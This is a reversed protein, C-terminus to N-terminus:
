GKQLIALAELHPTHPFFDFPELSVLRYGGASLARVDRALTKPNCSVYFLEPIDLALLLGLGKASIGARPPDVVVVDAREAPPHKLFREVTETRFSVNPVENAALNEEACRINEALSDIGTVKEVSGALAIELPGTGCYLGLVRSKPTALAAERIRRYLREAAATNTQFFTQPYIRFALGLIKEVIYARGHLLSMREFSVVDSMRNTVAQYFSTLGPVAPAIRAALARLDAAVDDATVLIAMLEATGQARRLVLHRLTGREVGPLHPALGNERAFELVLPFLTEVVPSFIPCKRLPVTEGWSRAMSSRERLGLVTEGGRWGFGFEMKNRYSYLQPSPIVAGIEISALAPIEAESLVRRLHDGKLELQKGYELNQFRCGGCPGFHPCEAEARFPSPVELKLIEATASERKERVIQVLARDGVVAQPILIKRGEIRALGCNEPFLSEEVAVSVPPREILALLDRVRKVPYGVVNDFDGELRRVFDDGVDQVAYAGAKDVFDNRDLYSDIM